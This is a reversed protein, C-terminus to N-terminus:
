IIKVMEEKLEFVFKKGVIKYPNEPDLIPTVGVGILDEALADIWL